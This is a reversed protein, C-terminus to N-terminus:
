RAPALRPSLARLGWSRLGRLSSAQRRSSVPGPHRTARRRLDEQRSRALQEAIYPHTPM